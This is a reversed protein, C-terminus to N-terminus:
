ELDAFDIADTQTLEWGDQQFLKVLGALHEEGYLLFLDKGGGVLCIKEFIKQNRYDLLIPKWARIMTAISKKMWNSSRKRGVFCVAKFWLPYRSFDHTGDSSVGVFSTSFMCHLLWSYPVRAAAGLNAAEQISIDVQITGPPYKIQRQNSTEHKEGLAVFGKKGLNKIFWRLRKAKRSTLLIKSDDNMGEFLVLQGPDAVVRDIDLQIKKYFRNPAVHLM